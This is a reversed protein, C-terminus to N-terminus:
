LRYSIAAYYAKAFSAINDAKDLGNVTRRANRWNDTTTNFSDALKKGTFTGDIMGGFLIQVAVGTDLALDPDNILDISLRDNWVKYNSKGTVQVFGRGHYKVGDGPTTNGLSRALNPNSGEIDYLRKFYRKGGYENIPKMKKDVEHHATGLIYALFRDEKNVHNAEWYDLILNLGDVQSQKFRGEFLYSKTYEFFFKRNIKM